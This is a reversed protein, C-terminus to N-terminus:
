VSTIPYLTSCRLRSIGESEYRLHDRGNDGGRGDGRLRHGDAVPAVPTTAVQRCKVRGGGRGVVGDERSQIRSGVHFSGGDRVAGTIAGIFSLCGGVVSQPSPPQAVACDVSGNAKTVCTFFPYSNRLVAASGAGDHERPIHQLRESGAKTTLRAVYM